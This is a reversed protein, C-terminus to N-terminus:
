DPERLRKEYAKLQQTFGFNPFVCSRRAKVLEYAKSFPLRYKRMIYAIVITASRSIGAFCHVLVAGRERNSEIFAFTEDFRQVLEERYCDEAEIVLHQDVDEKAYEAHPREDIITLVAKVGLERLLKLNNAGM